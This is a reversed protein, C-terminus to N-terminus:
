ATVSIASVSPEPPEAKIKRLGELHFAIAERVQQEVLERTAATAYVDLDPSWAGWGHEGRELLVLYDTM